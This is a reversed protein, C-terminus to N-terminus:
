KMRSQWNHLRLERAMKEVTGPSLIKNEVFYRGIRPQLLRQRGLLMSLEYPTLFNFRLACEGFKEGFRRHRMIEAIDNTHLWNWRMALNGILPRQVKQWIIADILQKYSILKHYYLFRGFLFIQRPMTGSSFPGAHKRTMPQRHVPSRGPMAFRGSM